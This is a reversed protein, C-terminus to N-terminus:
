IFELKMRLVRDIFAMSSRISSKVALICAAHDSPCLVSSQSPTVPVPLPRARCQCETPVFSGLSGLVDSASCRKMKSKCFFLCTAAARAMSSESSSPTASASSRGGRRNAASAISAGGRIVKSALVKGKTDSPRPAKEKKQCM